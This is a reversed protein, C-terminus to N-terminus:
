IYIKEKKQDTKKSKNVFSYKCNKCKYNQKGYKKGNKKTSKEGYKPCKKSM